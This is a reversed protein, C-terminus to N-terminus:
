GCPLSYFTKGGQTKKYLLDRGVLDSLMPNVTTALMKTGNQIDRSECSGKKKIFELIKMEYSKGNLPLSTVQDYLNHLDVRKKETISQAKAWHKLEICPSNELSAFLLSIRLAKEPFRVYNGGLDEPICSKMLKRLAEFYKYHAYIVDESSQLINARILEGQIEVSGNLDGKRFKPIGLRQNWEVLPKILSDPIVREGKPFSGFTELDPPPAILLFRALFGDGWLASGDRAFPRLDAPTLDALISLYPQHVEENGRLITANEYNSPTDDFIRIIGRFESYPGQQKMMSSLQMGFERFYMGKQGKFIAKNIARQRSIADLQDYNKIQCASMDMLLKQPTSNDPALLFDLGAKHIVESAIDSVTSKAYYGTQAINAIFLNGYRFKGSSVASR